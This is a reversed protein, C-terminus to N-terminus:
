CPFCMYYCCSYMSPSCTCQRLSSIHPGIFTSQFSAYKRPFECLFFYKAISFKYMAKNRNQSCADDALVSGEGPFALSRLLVSVHNRSEKDKPVGPYTTALTPILHYIPMTVFSAIFLRCTFYTHFCMCIIMLSGTFPIHVTCYM